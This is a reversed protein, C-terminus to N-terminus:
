CASHHSSCRCQPNRLRYVVGHRVGPFFDVIRNLVRIDAIAVCEIDLQTVVEGALKFEDTSAAASDPWIGFPINDPFESNQIGFCPGKNLDNLCPNTGATIQRRDFNRVYDAKLRM